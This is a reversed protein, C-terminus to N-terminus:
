GLLKRWWSATPLEIRSLELKCAECRYVLWTESPTSLLRDLSVGLIYHCRPCEKADLARQVGVAYNNLIAMADEPSFDARALRAALNQFHEGLHM